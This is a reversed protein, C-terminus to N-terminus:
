SRAKFVIRMGSYLKEFGEGFEESLMKEAKFGTCHGPYIKEVGLEKLKEATERVDEEKYSHMHFGGLVAYVNDNFLRSAHSAINAIGSHSCGGIVIVGLGEVRVAIGTDDPIDDPVVEGTELITYFGRRYQSVDMDGKIEGLYFTDPAVKLPARTLLLKANLRELDGRSYPIGIDLSVRNEGVYLAPKFLWPHGVIIPRKRGAMQEVAHLLGGTHDYRSHSLVIVDIGGLDVGLRGANHKLTEGTQGTDFLISASSGDDFKLDLHVSLGHEALLGRIGAYNEVLMTVILGIIRRSM